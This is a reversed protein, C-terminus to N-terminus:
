IIAIGNCRNSQDLPGEHTTELWNQRVDACAMQSSLVMTTRENDYAEAGQM